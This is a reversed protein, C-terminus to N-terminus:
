KIRIIENMMEIKKISEDYESREEGIGRYLYETRPSSENKKIQKYIDDIKKVV